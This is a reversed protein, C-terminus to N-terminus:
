PKVSSVSGVRDQTSGLGKHFVIMYLESGLFSLDISIPLSLSATETPKM